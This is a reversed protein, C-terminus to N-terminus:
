KVVLTAGVTVLFLCSLALQLILFIFYQNPSLFLLFSVVILSAMYHVRMVRISCIMPKEGISQSELFNNAGLPNIRLSLM